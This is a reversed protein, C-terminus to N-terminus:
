EKVTPSALLSRDFARVQKTERLSDAYIERLSKLCVLLQGEASQLSHLQHDKLWRNIVRSPIGTLEAAQAPTAVEVSAQCLPCEGTMPNQPNGMLGAEDNHNAMQTARWNVM